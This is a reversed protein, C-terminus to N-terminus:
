ILSGYHILEYGYRKLMQKFGESTLIEVERMRPLHFSSQYYVETDVYGPHCSAEVITYTQYHRADHDLIATLESKANAYSHSMDKMAPYNFINWFAEAPFQETEKARERADGYPRIPLHFEKSLRETVLLHEGIAHMYHHSDIHTLKVGLKLLKEIQAKWEAYLQDLDASQTQYVTRSKFLGNEDVLRDVNNLIPKGMTLSLHVGIGLQPVDKMLQLAHHLGPMNAMMTTSTVAGNLHADVIGYNIGRSYGFDDANIILQTM